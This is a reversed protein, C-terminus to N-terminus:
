FTFNSVPSAAPRVAVVRKGECRPNFKGYEESKLMTSILDPRTSFGLKVNCQRRDSNSRISM